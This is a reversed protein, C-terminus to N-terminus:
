YPELSEKFGTCVQGAFWVNSMGFGVYLILVSFILVRM